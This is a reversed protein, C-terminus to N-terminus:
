ADPEDDAGERRRPERPRQDVVEDEHGAVAHGCEQEHPRDGGEDEPEPHGHRGAVDEEGDHEGRRQLLRPEVADRHM